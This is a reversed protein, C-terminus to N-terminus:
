KVGVQISERGNEDFQITASDIKCTIAQKNSPNIVKVLDGLFYDVNFDSYRAQLIDFRFENVAKLESVRATGRADLADTTDVDTAGLFAESHASSSYDSAQVVRTVRESDEGKGGVVVVNAVEATNTKYQPAAINGRELSFVMSATRDTGLQGDYWRFEYHSGSPVLDFDGGGVEALKQLTELLNIWACYWEVTEGRGQDAEVTILSNAGDLLRGNATTAQASINYSVLTKAVTEAKAAAFASRNATNAHWAVIRKGLLSLLGSASITMSPADSYSWDLGDIFAILERKWAGNPPLRWVDVRWGPQVQSIIENAQSGSGRVEFSVSGPYNVRTQYNLWRVDTLIAKRAGTLDYLDLHFSSM